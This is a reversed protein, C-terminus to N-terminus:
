RAAGQRARARREAVFQGMWADVDAPSGLEGTERRRVCMSSCQRLTILVAGATVARKRYSMCIDFHEGHTHPKQIHRPNLGIRRAMEVLEERTDAIMHSMKMTRGSFPAKYQGIPYLYMDDVYVTM